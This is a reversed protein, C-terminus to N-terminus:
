TILDTSVYIGRKLGATMFAGEAPPFVLEYGCRGAYFNEDIGSVETAQFAAFTATTNDCAIAIWDGEGITVYLAALYTGINLTQYGAAPCPISGTTFVRVVPIYTANSYGSPYGTTATTQTNGRYVAIAINGSSTGVQFNIRNIRRTGGRVRYYYTYGAGHFAVASSTIRTPDDVTAPGLHYGNTQDSQYPQYEVFADTGIIKGVIGRAIYSGNPFASYALGGPYWIRITATATGTVNYGDINEFLGTLDTAGSSPITLMPYPGASFLLEGGVNKVISNTIGFIIGLGRDSGFLYYDDILWSLQNRYNRSPAYIAM